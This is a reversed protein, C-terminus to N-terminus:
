LAEGYLPCSLQCAQPIPAQLPQRVKPPISLSRTVGPPCRSLSHGPEKTGEGQGAPHSGQGAGRWGQGWGERGWTEPLLQGQFGRRVWTVGPRSPTAYSPRPGSRGPSARHQM